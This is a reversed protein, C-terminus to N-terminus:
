KEIKELMNLSALPNMFGVSRVSYSSNFLQVSQQPKDQTVGSVPASQRENRQGRGRGQQSTQTSTIHAKYDALCAAPM